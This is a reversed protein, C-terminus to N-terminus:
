VDSMETSDDDTKRFRPDCYPHALEKQIFQLIPLMNEKKKDKALHESYEELDLNDLLDSRESIM